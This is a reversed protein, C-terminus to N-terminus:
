AAPVRLPAGCGAGCRRLRGSWGRLQLLRGVQGAVDCPQGVVALWGFRLTAEGTLVAANDRFQDRLVAAAAEHGRRGDLEVLVGWPEYRLDRYARRGFTRAVAQHPAPPLGHRRAVRVRYEHELPSTVGQDFDACVAHLLARRRLRARQGAARLLRDPTTLRTRFVTLLLEAGDAEHVSRAFLELATHEVTLIRPQRAPHALLEPDPVRRLVVGLARRSSSDPMVVTVPEGPTAAGTVLGWARGATTGGIVSRPGLALHAAWMRTALAPRDTTVVLVGRHIRQWRGRDVLRGIADDPVGLSRAHATTIAGEQLGAAETARAIAVRLEPNLRPM